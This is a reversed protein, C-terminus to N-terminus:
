NNIQLIITILFFLFRGVTSTIKYIVHLIIQINEYSKDM